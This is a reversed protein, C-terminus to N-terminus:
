KARARCDRALRRCLCTVHEGSRDAYISMERGARVSRAGALLFLRGAARGARRPGRAGRGLRLGPDRDSPAHSRARAPPPGPREAVREVGMFFGNQCGFPSQYGSGFPSDLPARRVVEEAGTERACEELRVGLLEGHATDDRERVLLAADGLRRRRQVEGDRELLLSQVHEHTSRSGCPLRVILWPKLGSEISREIYSTSTWRSGISSTMWCASTSM